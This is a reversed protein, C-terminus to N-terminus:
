SLLLFAWRLVIMEFSVFGIEYFFDNEKTKLNELIFSRQCHNKWYACINLVMNQLHHMYMYVGDDWKYIRRTFTYIYTMWVYVVFGVDVNHHYITFLLALFNFLKFCIKCDQIIDSDHFDHHNKKQYFIKRLKQAFM